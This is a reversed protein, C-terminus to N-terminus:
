DRRPLGNILKDLFNGVISGDTWALRLITDLAEDRESAKDAFEPARKFDGSRVPVPEHKVEVFDPFFGEIALLRPVYDGRSRDVAEAITRWFKSNKGLGVIYKPRQERVVQRLASVPDDGLYAEDQGDPRGAFLGLEILESLGGGIDQESGERLVEDDKDNPRRVLPLLRIPSALYTGGELTRSRRSGLLGIGVELATAADALLYLRQQETVCFEALTVAIEIALDRNHDETDIFSVISM